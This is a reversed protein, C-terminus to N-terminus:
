ASCQPWPLAPLPQPVPELKQRSDLNWRHVEGGQDTILLAKGDESYGIRRANPIADLIARLWEQTVDKSDAAHECWFVVVTRAEAIATEIQDRWRKGPQQSDTDRFVLTDQARLLRVVPDVLSADRRSYSVFVEVTADTM